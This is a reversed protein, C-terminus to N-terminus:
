WRQLVEIQELGIEVEIHLVRGDSFLHDAAKADKEKAPASLVMALGSGLIIVTTLAASGSRVKGALDM